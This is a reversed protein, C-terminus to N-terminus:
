RGVFADAEEGEEEVEVQDDAEGDLWDDADATEGDTVFGFVFAV